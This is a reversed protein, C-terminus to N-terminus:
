KGLVREYVNGICKLWKEQTYDSRLKLLGAEAMARCRAPERLMGGIARAWAEADRMQVKLGDVGEEVTDSLGGADSVV